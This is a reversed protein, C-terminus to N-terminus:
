QAGHSKYVAILQNRKPELWHLGAVEISARTSEQLRLPSGLKKVEIWTGVNIRLYIRMSAFLYGHHMSAKDSAWITIGFDGGTALRTGSTNVAIHTIPLGPSISSPTDDDDTHIGVVRM